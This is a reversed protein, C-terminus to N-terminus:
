ESAKKLDLVARYQQMHEPYTDTIWMYFGKLDNLEAYMKDIVDAHNNVTNSLTSLANNLM